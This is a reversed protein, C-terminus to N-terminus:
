DDGYIKFTYGGNASIWGPSNSLVFGASYNHGISLSNERKDGSMEFGMLSYGASTGVGFGPINKKPGLIFGFSLSFNPGFSPGSYTLDTGITGYLNGGAYTLSGYAPVSGGYQKSHSLSVYPTVEMSAVGNVIANAKRLGNNPASNPYLDDKNDSTFQNIWNKMVDVFFNFPNPDDPGANEKFIGERSAGRDARFGFGSTWDPDKDKDKDDKVAARMRAWSLLGEISSFSEMGDPDIFRIPNDFAYNYPSWRRMKESLPDIVGWRGIDGMYMRAGYDYWGLDLEEQKEKGNFLYNQDAGNAKNYSNFTLGFPYYDNSQDVGTHHVISLDDFYVNTQVPNENSLYIYLYGKQQVKIHLSLYDHDVDPSLGVQGANTSVQDFGFDILQFSEDFLIYNLYAKPAAPDWKSGDIWPAGAPFLNNFATQAQSGDLPTTGAGLSFASILGNLIGNVNNAPPSAPSEYKAYVELDLVDGSNVTLSRALGVQYNNGGNLLHSKTYTIGDDTHDFLNLTGLANYKSFLQQEEAQGNTEFTAKYETTSKKESFVVRTNGLHDKLFYQYEWAGPAGERNDPVLRGEEHTIFRLTDNEYVFENNYDTTKAATGFVQQRLKRGGADYTYILYETASKNVREPLNLHNYTISTIGKNQDKAMNGNADYAYEDNAPDYVNFTAETLEKFGEENSNDPVADNVVALQNGRHFYRL